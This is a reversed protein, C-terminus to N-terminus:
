SAIFMEQNNLVVKIRNDLTWDDLEVKPYKMEINPIYKNKRAFRLSHGTILYDYGEETASTIVCDFFRELSVLLKKFTFYSMKQVFIDIDESERSRGFLISVYGSVLVYRLNFEDLCKVFDLTLLDLENLEKTLSIGGKTYEM